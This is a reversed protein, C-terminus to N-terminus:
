KAAGPRTTPATTADPGGTRKLTITRENEVNPELAILGEWSEYGNLEIRIKASNRESMLAVGAKPDAFTDNFRTVVEMPQSEIPTTGLDIKTETPSLIQTVKAGEPRTHLTLLRSQTDYSAERQPGSACGCALAGLLLIITRM